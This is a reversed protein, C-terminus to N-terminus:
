SNLSEIQSIVLFFIIPFYDLRTKFYSHSHILIHFSDFRLCITNLRILCSCKGQQKHRHHLPHVLYYFKNGVIFLSNFLSLLLLLFQFHSCANYYILLYCNIKEGPIFAFVRSVAKKIIIKEVVSLTVEFYFNYCSHSHMSFSFLTLIDQLIFTLADFIHFSNLRLLIINM